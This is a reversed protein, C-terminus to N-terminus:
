AAAGGDLPQVITGRPGLAGLVGGYFLHAPLLLAALGPHRSAVFGLGFLPAYVAAAVGWLGLGYLAGRGVTIARAAGSFLAGALAGYVLHAAAGAGLWLPHAALARAPLRPVGALAPAALLLATMALTAVVGAALGQCLRRRTREEPAEVM